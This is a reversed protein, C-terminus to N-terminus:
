RRIGSATLLDQLLRRYRALLDDIDQKSTMYVRDHAATDGLQKVETM